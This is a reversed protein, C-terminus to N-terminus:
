NSNIKRLRSFEFDFINKKMIEILALRNIPKSVYDNCGAEISKDRDGSLAYATQAIIVVKKNFKRIQRTAEYGDIGPMNIDMFILDIDPNKRCAEIGDEGNSSLLFSSCFPKLIVSLLLQSTEDNEVVLIKLKRGPRSNNDEVSLSKEKKEIDNVFPITFYFTSGQGIESEVWIKGGLIETYAKSIALGLGAGQCDRTLSENCQRFREFIVERQEQPIGSGTDRVFFEIFDGKKKYGLEISGSHTFKLANKVLNTLVAYMKEKDTKIVEEKSTHPISISFHLNKQQAEPKFFNFVEEIQEKINVNSANAEIQGAEIRSINIIDNIINLMRAGSKEIIAIFNQQEAGTLKPAKLLETFGLIGNMPTRIEHSM